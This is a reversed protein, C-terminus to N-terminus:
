RYSGPHRRRHRRIPLPAHARPARTPALGTLADVRPAPYPGFRHNLAEQLLPLDSAKWTDKTTALVVRDARVTRAVDAIKAATRKATTSAKQESLNGSAKAEVVVVQGDVHAILDIEAIPSGDRLFELEGVDAYRRASAKLHQAALLPVDGRESMVQRIATHLDFYWTPEVGSEWRTSTLANGAGCRPCEYSRGLRDVPIFSRRRCDACSTIVGRRVLDAHILQDLLEVVPEPSSLTTADRMADLSAYAINGIWRPQLARQQATMANLRSRRQNGSEGTEAFLALAPHMPGNVLDILLERGGLRRAVIEANNGPPSSRVTLSKEAAMAEAWAKMGPSVLTPRALRTHKVAGALVFGFSAAMVSIGDRSSRVLSEQWGRIPAVFAAPGVSRGQPAPSDDVWVDVLWAPLSGGFYGESQPSPLVYPTTMTLTGDNDRDVAVTSPVDVDDPYARVQRPGALDPLQTRAIHNRPAPAIFPGTIAEDLRRLYRDVAEDDLSTSAYSPLRREDGYVPHCDQIMPVTASLFVDDAFLATPLWLGFGQLVRCAQAYAFDEVSDGIVVAGRHDLYGTEFVAVGADLVDFRSVARSGPLGAWLAGDVLRREPARLVNRLMVHPDLEERAEDAEVIGWLSALVLATDSEWHRPVAVYASFSESVISSSTVLGSTGDSQITSRHQYRPEGAGGRSSGPSWLPTCWAELLARARDGAPDEHVHKGGNSLMSAVDEPPLPQGDIDNFRLFGPALREWEQLTPTLQLIHDPDFCAVARLMRDSINGAADYPM